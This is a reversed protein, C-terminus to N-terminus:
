SDLPLTLTHESEHIENTTKQQFMPLKAQPQSSHTLFPSYENHRAQALGVSAHSWKRFNHTHRDGCGYVLHAFKFIEHLGFTRLYAHM